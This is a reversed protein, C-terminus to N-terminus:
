RPEDDDAPAEGISATQRIKLPVRITTPPYDDGSLMKEVMEIMCQVTRQHDIQVTTLPPRRPGTSIGRPLPEFTALSIQRPVELDAFQPDDLFSKAWPSHTFVLATPRDRGQFIMRFTRNWVGLHHRWLPVYLPMSCTELLGNDKLYDLWGGVLPRPVSPDPSSSPDVLCLNRHGLKVLRNAIDRSAAYDDVIVAPLDLGPVRHDFIVLPFGQEHLMSLSVLYVPEFALVIAADYEKRALSRAVAMQERPAWGLLTAQIKRREAERTVDNVMLGWLPSSKALPLYDDPVLIAVQRIALRQSHELLLKRAREQAGPLVVVPRRQRVNLLEYGVARKLAAQLSKRSVAFEAALRRSPPLRTGPPWCGSALRRLLMKM